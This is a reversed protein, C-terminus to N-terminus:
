KLVITTTELDFSVPSFSLKKGHMWDVVGQYHIYPIDQHPPTITLRDTKKTVILLDSNRGLISEKALSEIITHGDLVAEM